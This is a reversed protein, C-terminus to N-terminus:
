TSIWDHAKSVREHFTHRDGSPFGSGRENSASERCLSQAWVRVFRHHEQVLGSSVPLHQEHQWALERSYSWLVFEFGPSNVTSKRFAM